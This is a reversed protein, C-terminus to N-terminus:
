GAKLHDVLQQVAANPQGPISLPWARPAPRPALLCQRIDNLLTGPRTGVPGGMLQALRWANQPQDYASPMVLQHVGARLGQAIAGIGGHHVFVKAAELLSPLHARPTEPALLRCATGQAALAESAACMAQAAPTAVSGPYLVVEGRDQGAPSGADYLPFGCLWFGPPVDGPPAAFEPPWLGCSPQGRHLWDGFVSGVLPPLAQNRRWVNLTARAMPELRWADLGQWLWHRARTPLWDPAHYPGLFMPTAVSRLSTPATHALTLRLPWRDAALRAGIALPSALVRLAGTKRSLAGLLQTSPEISPVVLHRWLVGLGRIPHWLDPHALTRAEDEATAIAAFRVGQARVEAEHSAQSALLVDTGQEHLARAVALFPHLDGASGLTMIVIKVM